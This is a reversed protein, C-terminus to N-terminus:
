PGPIGRRLSGAGGPRLAPHYLFHQSPLLDGPDGYHGPPLVEGLYVVMGPLQRKGFVLFPIARTLWTVLAAVAIMLIPYLADNHM